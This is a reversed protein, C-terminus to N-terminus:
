FSANCNHLYRNIYKNISKSTARKVNNEYMADALVLIEKNVNINPYLRQWYELQDKYIYYLGGDRLIFEIRYNDVIWCGKM